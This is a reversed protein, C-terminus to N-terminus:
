AISGHGLWQSVRWYGGDREWWRSACEAGFTMFTCISKWSTSHREAEPGARQGDATFRATRWCYSQSGRVRHNVIHGDRGWCGFVCGDAKSFDARSSAGSSPGSPDISLTRAGAKAPAYSLDGSAAWNIDSVLVRNLEDRARRPLDGRAADFCRAARGAITSTTSQNCAPSWRPRRGNASGVFTRQM